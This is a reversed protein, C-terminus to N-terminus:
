VSFGAWILWRGLLPAEAATATDLVARFATVKGGAITFIHVWDSAVARGSRKITLAYRGLVFVFVKDAVARFEKPSFESFTYSRGVLAFLEQV